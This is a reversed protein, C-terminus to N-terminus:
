AATGMLGGLLQGFDDNRNNDVVFGSSRIDRLLGSKDYPTDMQTIMCLCKVCFSTKSDPNDVHDNTFQILRKTLASAFPLHRMVAAFGSRFSGFEFPWLALLSTPPVSDQVLSHLDLLRFAADLICSPMTTATDVVSNSRHSCITSVMTCVLSDKMEGSDDDNHVVMLERVLSFNGNLIALQTALRCFANLLVQRAEGIESAKLVACWRSAAAAIEDSGSGGLALKESFLLCSYGMLSVALARAISEAGSPANSSNSAAGIRVPTSNRNPRRRPPGQAVPSLPMEDFSQNVSIRSVNLDDFPTGSEETMSAATLVSTSMWELLQGWKQTLGQDNTSDGAGQKHLLYRGYAECVRLVFDVDRTQLSHIYHQLVVAHNSAPEHYTCVALLPVYRM